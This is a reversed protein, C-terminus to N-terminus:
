QIFDLPNQREGNKVIEYHLHPGTSRGTSGVLGIKQGKKVQQGSQLLIKNLHMYRTIVGNSHNITIQNGYIRDYGTYSITGDAAAYVPDNYYAGIDLGTHFSLANTFPDRRYGFTSTIKQHNTPWISPTINLLQQYEVIDEKTDSLSVLMSEVNKNLAILNESTNTAVNKLSDNHVPVLYGGTGILVQKNNNHLVSVPSAATVVEKELTMNSPNALATSDVGTIKKIDNEFKELENLKTEIEQTQESLSILNNQLQEITEDKSEITQDKQAVMKVYDSESVEFSTQLRDYKLLTSQHLTFLAFTALILIGLFIPISYLILDMMKFQITSRSADHLIIFTFKKKKWKYQLLKKM